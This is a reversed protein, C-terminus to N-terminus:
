VRQPSVANGAIVALTGAVAIQISTRLYSAMTVRDLPGPGPTISAETSVPASGPLWGGALEVAPAFDGAAAREDDSIPRGIRARARPYREVSAALRSGLVAARREGRPVARLAAVADSMRAPDDDLVASLATAASRRVECPAGKVALAVAFRP